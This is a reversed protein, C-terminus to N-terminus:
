DSRWEGTVLKQPSVESKFAQGRYKKQIKNGSEFQKRQLGEGTSGIGQNPRPEEEEYSTDGQECETETNDEEQRPPQVEREETRVEEIKREERGGRGERRWGRGNSRRRPSPSYHTWIRLQEMWEEPFTGTTPDLGQCLGM